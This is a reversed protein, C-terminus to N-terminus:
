EDENESEDSPKGLIEVKVKGDIGAVENTDMTATLMKTKGRAKKSPTVVFELQVEEDKGIAKRRLFDYLQLLM